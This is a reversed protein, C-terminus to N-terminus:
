LDAEMAALIRKYSHDAFDMLLLSDVMRSSGAKRYEALAATIVPHYRKRINRLAWDGGEAKSTILAHDIYALVRCFNLVAYVPVRCMDASPSDRINRFNDEADLVISALYYKAPVEAFVRDIPEGYLCLGRKKIITFHAALDPDVMETTRAQGHTQIQERSGMHFEYPTPYRFGRGVYHKLVISMEIGKAPADQGYVELFSIALQQREGYTLPASIVAIYDLDSQEYTFGGTAASGHLYVGVLKHSLAHTLIRTQKELAPAAEKPIKHANKLTM